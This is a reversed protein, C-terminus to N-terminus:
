DYKGIEIDAIIKKYIDALEKKSYNKQPAYDIFNIEREQEM